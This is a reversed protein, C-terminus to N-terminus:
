YYSFMAEGYEGVICQGGSEKRSFVAGLSIELFAWTPLTGGIVQVFLILPTLRALHLLLFAGSLVLPQQRPTTTREAGCRHVPPLHLKPLAIVRFRISHTKLNLCCPDPDAPYRSYNICIASSFNFFCIVHLYFYPAIHHARKTVDSLSIKFRCQ